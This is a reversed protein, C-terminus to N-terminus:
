DQAKSGDTSPAVGANSAGVTAVDFTRWLYSQGGKHDDDYVSTDDIPLSTDV